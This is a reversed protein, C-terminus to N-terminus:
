PLTTRINSLFSNSLIFALLLLFNFHIYKVVLSVQCKKNADLATYVHGSKCVYAFKAYICFKRLYAFRTMYERIRFKCTHLLQFM